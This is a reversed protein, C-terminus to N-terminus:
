IKQSTQTNTSPFMFVFYKTVSIRVESVLRGCLDKNIREGKVYKHESVKVTIICCAKLRNGRQNGEKGTGSIKMSGVSLLVLSLSKSFLHSIHGVTKDEKEKKIAYKNHFNSLERKCRM